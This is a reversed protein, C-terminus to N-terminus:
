IFRWLKLHNTAWVLLIIYFMSKLKRMVNLFLLMMEFGFIEGKSGCSSLMRKIM